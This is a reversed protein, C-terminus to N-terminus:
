KGALLSRADDVRHAGADRAATRGARREVVHGALRAHRTPEQVVVEAGLLAQEDLHHAAVAVDAEGRQVLREGVGVRGVVEDVHENARQLVHHLVVGPEHREDELQEGGGPAVVLDGGLHGPEVAARALVHGPQELGLLALAHEPEM